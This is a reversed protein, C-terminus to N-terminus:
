LARVTMQLPWAYTGPQTDRAFAFRFSLEQALGPTLPGRQVVAGGDPGLLAASKFGDIHVSSFLNGVPFFEMLYGNRSNTHVSFRTAASVDIYGMAVDASTINLVAQQYDTRLRASAVVTVSVGMAATSPAAIAAQDIPSLGASVALAYVIFKRQLDLGADVQKKSAVGAAVLEVGLRRGTLSQRYLAVELQARSIERNALLIHGLTYKGSPPPIGSQRRQYEVIANREAQTLLRMEILIDGLRRQDDRQVTLAEALQSATIRKAALLLEGLRRQEGAALTLIYGLQNAYRQMEPNLVEHASPSFGSGLPLANDNKLDSEM